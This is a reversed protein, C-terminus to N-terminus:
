RSPRFELHCTECQPRMRLYAELLAGSDGGRAAARVQRLARLFEVRLAELRAPSGRLDTRRAIDRFSPDMTWREIEALKLDVEAASGNTRLLTQVAKDEFDMQLMVTHLSYRPVPEGCSSTSAAISSLLLALGRAVVTPNARCRAM